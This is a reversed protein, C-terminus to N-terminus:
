RGRLIRGMEQEVQAGRPSLVFDLSGPWDLLNYVKLGRRRDQQVIEQEFNGPYFVSGEGAEELMLKHGEPSALYIAVLKAANPHRAGKLVIVSHTTWRSIDLSTWQAPVGKRQIQTYFGSSTLLLPYEGAMYRTVGRAYIEVTPENKMIERLTALTSDVGLVIAYSLYIPTYPFVILKGRWKPNALDKLTAPVHQSSVVAPNYVLGIHNTHTSIAYGDFQIVQPPTGPALLPKWDVKEAIAAAVAQALEADAFPLLDYPPPAGAKKEFIAKALAQPYSSSPAYAIQLNIGYRQNVSQKLREIGKGALGPHLRISVTREKKAGEVITVLSGSQAAFSAATSCLAAAAIWLVLFKTTM